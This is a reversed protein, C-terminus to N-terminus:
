TYMYTYSSQNLQLQLLWREQDVATNPYRRVKMELGRGTKEIELFQSHGPSSALSVTALYGTHVVVIVKSLQCGTHQICIHGDIPFGPM